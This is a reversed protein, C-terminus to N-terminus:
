EDVSGIARKGVVENHGSCICNYKMQTSAYSEVTNYCCGTGHSEQTPHYWSRLLTLAM